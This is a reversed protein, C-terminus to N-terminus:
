VHARGIQNEGKFVRRGTLLEFIVCGLAYLDTSPSIPRGRAQEPSMYAATGLLVGAVTRDSTMTPSLSGSAAAGDTEAELEKALGFDLLKVKGDPTLKINAPKLDRHIVGREHAAELGEAIARAIAMAEAAPIPGRAVRLDLSEGAVLELVLFRVGDAEEIGYIAAIGPHSLSALLRAEREFRALRQPDRAFVDPLIKVAVKRGLRTDLAEYVVGMGGEGIKEVLRYHALMAGPSLPM